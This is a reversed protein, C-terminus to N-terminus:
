GFFEKLIDAGLRSNRLKKLTAEEIQRVREKTLGVRRGIEEFTMGTAEFELKGHDGASIGELSNTIDLPRQTNTEESLLRDKKSNLKKSRASYYATAAEKIAACASAIVINVVTDDLGYRLKLILRERQNLTNLLQALQAKMISSDALVEAEIDHRVDKVFDGFVSDGESGVPLDLSIVQSAYLEQLQKVKAVSM